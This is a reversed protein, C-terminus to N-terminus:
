NKGSGNRILERLHIRLSNKFTKIASVTNRSTRRKGNMGQQMTERLEKIKEVTNQYEPAFGNNKLVDLLDFYLIEIQIKTSESPVIGTLKINIQRLKEKDDPSLEISRKM